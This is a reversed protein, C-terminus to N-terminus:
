SSCARTPRAVWTPCSTPRRPCGVLRWEPRARVRRRRVALLVVQDERVFVATTRAPVYFAGTGADFNSTQVVCRGLGAPDSAPQVVARRLEGGFDLSQDEDNANLISM